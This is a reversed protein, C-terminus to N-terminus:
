EAGRIPKLRRYFDNLDGKMGLPIGCEAIPKAPNGRVMTLPRVSRSVVSGATVVAGRGITVNPLIICGPGIFVEDEIVVSYPRGREDRRPSERFHGIIVTRVGIHTDRGIRVLEPMSTEILVGIGINAGEGLQVGRWRHLAARTSEAGPAYLALLQLLRITAGHIPAERM